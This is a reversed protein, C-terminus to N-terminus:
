VTCASVGSVDKVERVVVVGEDGVKLKLPQVGERQWQTIRMVGGIDDVLTIVLTDATVASGTTKDRWGRKETKVSVVKGKATVM